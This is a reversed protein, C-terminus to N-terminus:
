FEGGPSGHGALGQFRLGVSVGTVGMGAVWGGAPCSAVGAAEEGGEEGGDEGGEERRGGWGGLGLAQVRVRDEQPSGQGTQPSSWRQGSSSGELTSVNWVLVTWYPHGWSGHGSPVHFLALAM